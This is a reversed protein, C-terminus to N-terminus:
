IKILKAVIKKYLFLKYILKKKVIGYIIYIYIYNIIFM